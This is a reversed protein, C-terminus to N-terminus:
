GNDKERKDNNYIKDFYVKIEAKIASIDKEKEAHLDFMEKEIEELKKYNKMM